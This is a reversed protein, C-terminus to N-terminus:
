VVVGHGRGVGHDSFSCRDSIQGGGCQGCWCCLLCWGSLLVCSCCYLLEFILPLKAGARLRDQACHEPGVENEHVEGTDIPQQGDDSATMDEDLQAQLDKCITGNPVAIANNGEELGGSSPSGDQHILAAWLRRSSMVAGAMVHQWGDGLRMSKLASSGTYTAASHAIGKFSDSEVCSSHQGAILDGLCNDVAAFVPELLAFMSVIHNPENPPTSREEVLGAMTHSVTNVCFRLLSHVLGCVQLPPLPASVLERYRDTAFPMLAESHVGQSASAVLRCALGVCGPLLASCLQSTTCSIPQTTGFKSLMKPSLMKTLFSQVKDGQM